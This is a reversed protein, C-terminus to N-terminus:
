KKRKNAQEQLYRDPEWPATDSGILLDLLALVDDLSNAVAVLRAGSDFDRAEAKWLTGQTRITVTGTQRPTGDEFRCQSLHAVIEPFKSLTVNDQSAMSVPVDKREASVLNVKKLM